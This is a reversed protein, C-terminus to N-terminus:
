ELTKGRMLTQTDQYTIAGYDGVKGIAM